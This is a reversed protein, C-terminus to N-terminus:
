DFAGARLFSLVLRQTDPHDMIRTHTEDVTAFATMSPLTTERVLVTGDSPEDRDFLKTARTLWSTPNGLALARSGAIVAFPAPPTPWADGDGLEYGAPGYFWQFAARDRLARAVRSGRNPPAILVARRWPLLHAMHRWIIGGLSHTVAMLEGSCEKEIREALSKALSEVTGHRSPYSPSFTRYGARELASVMGRMSLHTRALGHLVVVTSADTM